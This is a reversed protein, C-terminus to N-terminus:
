DELRLRETDSVGAELDVLLFTAPESLRNILFTEFHLHTQLFQGAVRLPLDRQHIPSSPESAREDGIQNAEVTNQFASFIDIGDLTNAAIVNSETWFAGPRGVGIKNNNANQSIQVGVEQAILPQSLGDPTPGILNGDVINAYSGSGSIKIGAKPNSWIFNRGQGRQGHM